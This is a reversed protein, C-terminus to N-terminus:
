GGKSITDLIVSATLALAFALVIVYLPIRDLWDLVPKCQSLFLTVVALIICAAFFAGVCLDLPTFIKGLLLSPFYSVEDLAGITTLSIVTWSSTRSPVTDEDEGEDEGSTDGQMFECEDRDRFDQSGDTSGYMNSIKKTTARHLMVQGKRRRQKLWKRIYLLLAIAFCIGAGISGLIAEEGWKGESPSTTTIVAWQLWTALVVCCCVLFELTVVFLAGHVLRTCTPLSPSTYPVLWIADDATTAAVMLTAAVISWAMDEHRRPKAYQQKIIHLAIPAQWIVIKEQIKLM